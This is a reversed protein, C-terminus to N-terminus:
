NDIGFSQDSDSYSQDSDSGSEEPYNVRYQHRLSRGPTIVPKIHTVPTTYGEHKAPRDWNWKCHVM